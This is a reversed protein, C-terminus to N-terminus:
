GVIMGLAVGLCVQMLLTSGWLFYAALRDKHYVLEGLLANVLWVGAGAAPLILLTTKSSIRGARGLATFYVPLSAPLNSYTFALYGALALWLLAAIGLFWWALRDALLPSTLPWSRHLTTSWQQTPGLAQREQWAQLFREPQHPSIVYTQRPTAVLLSDVLSATTQFKLPGHDDLWGRGFRLGALNIQRFKATTSVEQGPMVTQITDFPIRYQTLGWQIILGNRDLHYSLKIAILTWYVSTLAVLLALLCSVLLVFTTAIIDLTFMGAIATLTEQGPQLIIYLLYIAAAGSFIAVVLAVFGSRTPYPQFTM